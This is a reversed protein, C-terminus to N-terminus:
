LTSWFDMWHYQFTCTRRRWYPSARALRSDLGRSLLLGTIRTLRIANVCEDTLGGVEDRFTTWFVHQLNNHDSYRVWGNQLDLKGTLSQLSHLNVGFPGIEAKAWDVVGVLHYTTEDIIINYANFDKHLLVLPLSFIADISDIYKRIFPQLRDPLATLLLEREFKGRVKAYYAQDAPQPM